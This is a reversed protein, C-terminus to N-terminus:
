EAPYVKYEPEVGPAGPGMGGGKSAYRKVGSMETGSFRVWTEENTMDSTGQLIILTENGKVFGYVASADAGGEEPYWEGDLSVQKGRKPNIVIPPDGADLAVEWAGGPHSVEYKRFEVAVSILPTYESVGPVHAVTPHYEGVTWATYGSTGGEQACGALLAFALM